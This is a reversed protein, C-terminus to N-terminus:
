RVLSIIRTKKMNLAELRVYYIGAGLTAGRDDTGNWTLRYEGASQSGHALTKVRRGDVSYVSLDVPGDKALSYAVTAHGQSPNPIVPQLDTARVISGVALPTGIAITVAQNSGDRGQLHDVDVGPDGTATAHFHVTAVVGTGTMGQGPGLLAADAAGAAPSFMVGGQAALLEGTTVGTPQAVGANWRLAVSLAQLNGSGSLNLTVDFDEGATVETPRGLQIMNATAPTMGPVKTASVHPTYNLAYLVLDEFDLKSDTTPRGNTSNDTTPGVDLYEFGVLTAGSAGYHSGLLSLDATTVSNDGQGATVGDTVDGLHYDLTGSTLNSVPGVAGCADRAYAVYYWYDRTGPADTQGSATVSTLTWGAPPYAGPAPPM